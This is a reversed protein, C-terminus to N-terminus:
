FYWRFGLAAGIFGDLGPFVFIAPDLELYIEVPATAFKASLGLPFRVGLGVFSRDRSAYYYSGPIGYGYGGHFLTLWLGPGIYANVGVDGNSFLQAVNFLYDGHLSLGALGYNFRNGGFGFGLGLVIDAGSAPFKVTLATPTGVQLGIGVGSGPQILPAQTNSTNNNNTSTNTKKTGTGSQTQLVFAAEDLLARDLALEIAHAPRAGFLATVTFASVILALSHIRPM